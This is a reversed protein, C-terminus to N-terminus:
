SHTLQRPLCKQGFIQFSHLFGKRLRICKKWESEQERLIDENQVFVLVSTPQFSLFWCEYYFWLYTALTFTNVQPLLLDVELSFFLDDLDVELM